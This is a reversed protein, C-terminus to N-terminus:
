IHILSLMRLRILVDLLPPADSTSDRADAVWSFSPSIGGSRWAEGKLEHARRTAELAHCRALVLALRASPPAAACATPDKALRAAIAHRAAPTEPAWAIGDTRIM